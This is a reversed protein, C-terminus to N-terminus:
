PDGESAEGALVTTVMARRGRMEPPSSEVLRPDGVSDGFGFGDDIKEVSGRAKGIALSAM